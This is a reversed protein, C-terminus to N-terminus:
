EEIGRRKKEPSDSKIKKKESEVMNDNKRKRPSAEPFVREKALKFLEDAISALTLWDPGNQSYFQELHKFFSICDFYILHRLMDRLDKIDYM